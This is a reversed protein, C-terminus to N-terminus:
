RWLSCHDYWDQRGLSHIILVVTKNIYAVSVAINEYFCASVHGCVEDSLVPESNERKKKM